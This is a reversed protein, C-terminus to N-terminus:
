PARIVGDERLKNIQKKSYSLSQLINLTHQGLLPPPSSPAVECKEFNWPPAIYQLKGATPHDIQKVIEMAEAQPHKFLSEYDNFPLVEGGYKHAIVALEETTHNQFAQDFIPRVEYARPGHGMTASAGGAFRPDALYDGLGGEKM